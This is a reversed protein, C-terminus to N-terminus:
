FVCVCCLLTVKAHSVLTEQAPPPPSLLAEVARLLPACRELAGFGAAGADSDDGDEDAL